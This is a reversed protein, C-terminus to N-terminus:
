AFVGQLFAAAKEFWGEADKGEALREERILNLRGLDSFVKEAAKERIHCTNFIVIDAEKLTPTAHHGLSELIAAIRGSDYVNM